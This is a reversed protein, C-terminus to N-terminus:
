CLDAATDTTPVPSVTPGLSDAWIKITAQKPIHRACVFLTQPGHGPRPWLEATRDADAECFECGIAPTDAVTPSAHKRLVAQILKRDREMGIGVCLGAIVAFTIVLGDAVLHLFM